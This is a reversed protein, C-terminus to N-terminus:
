NKEQYAKSKYLEEVASYSAQAFYEPLRKLRMIAFKDPSLIAFQLAFTDAKGQCEIFHYQNDRCICFKASVEIRFGLITGETTRLGLKLFKFEPRKKIGNAVDLLDNKMTKLMSDLELKMKLYDRIDGDVKGKAKDIIAKKLLQGIDANKTDVVDYYGDFTQLYVRVILDKYRNVNAKNCSFSDLGLVDLLALPSNDGYNYVLLKLYEIEAMKDRGIWRGDMPNYHRYNYYILGLETDNFESSWQIPQTVDGEESVQGYPAYTYATRIYGAPGYLECINKTLDRGYAPHPKLLWGGLRSCVQSRFGQKALRAPASFWSGDKQLALPRTATTTIGATDKQARVVGDVTVTEATIASGPVTSYQVRKTGGSYVTWQTSTLGRESVFVSKSELTGSLQSILQKQVSSLPQGAANYRTTTTVSNVGDALAEEVAYHPM